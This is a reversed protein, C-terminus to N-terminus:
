FGGVKGSRGNADRKALSLVRSFVHPVATRREEKLGTLRASTDHWFRDLWSGGGRRILTSALEERENASRTVFLKILPVAKRGQELTSLATYSRSM